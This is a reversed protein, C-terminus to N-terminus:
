QRWRSRQKQGSGGQVEREDVANAEPRECKMRQLGWGEDSVEM